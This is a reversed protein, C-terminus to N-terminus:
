PPDGGTGLLGLLFGGGAGALSFVAAETIAGGLPLLSSGDLRGAAALIGTAALALGAGAIAAAALTRAPSRRDALAVGSPVVVAVLLPAAHYVIGENLFALLLWIGSLGLGYAGARLVSRVAPLRREPV